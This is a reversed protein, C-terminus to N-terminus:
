PHIRLLNVLWLGGAIICSFGIAIGGLLLDVGGIVLLFIGIGILTTM